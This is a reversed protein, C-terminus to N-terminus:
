PEYIAHYFSIKNKVDLIKVLATWIEKGIEYFIICICYVRTLVFVTLVFNLNRNHFVNLSWAGSLTMLKVM